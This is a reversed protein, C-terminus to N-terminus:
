GTWTHVLPKLFHWIKPLVWVTIGGLIFAIVLLTIVATMLGDLMGSLPHSM